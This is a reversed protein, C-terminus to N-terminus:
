DWLGCDEVELQNGCSPCNWEYEEDGEPLRLEYIDPAPCCSKELVKGMPEDDDGPGVLEVIPDHMVRTEIFSGCNRCASLTITAMMGTGFGLAKEIECAACRAIAMSGM